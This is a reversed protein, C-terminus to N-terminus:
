GWIIIIPHFNIYREFGVMRAITSEEMEATTIGGCPL